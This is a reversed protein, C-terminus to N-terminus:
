YRDDFATYAISRGDPSIAPSSDPGKRATLARVAGDSVRFEYVETDLPELEWDPHRNASILLFKGDPTWVAESARSVPGSHQFDGSSIQRPAGGDASVVFLQTYGPKLYGTGNYRYVLRDILKPPQAWKAGEPAQPMKVLEPPDRHVLCTFSIWRGDPSWAIGEPPATLNTIKATEGTDMWRRYIQPSGDRNSLFALQSGDPSWRPSSDDFNGSTLARNRSGDTHVIWLNSHRADGMIDAFQRVYVVSKGDPSIRPDAATQLGFVDGVTLPGAAASTTLGALQVTVALRAMVGMVNM